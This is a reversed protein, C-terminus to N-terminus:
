LTNAELYGADQLKKLIEDKHLLGVQAGISGVVSAGNVSGWKMAVEM